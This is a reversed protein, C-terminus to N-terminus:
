DEGNTPHQSYRSLDEQSVEEPPVLRYHKERVLAVVGENQEFEFLAIADDAMFQAGLAKCILTPFRRRGKGV